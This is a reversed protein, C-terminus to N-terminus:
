EYHKEAERVGLCAWSSAREDSTYDVQRASSPGITGDVVGARVARTCCAGLRARARTNRDSQPSQYVVDTYVHTHINYSLLYASTHTLM